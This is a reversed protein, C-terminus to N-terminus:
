AERKLNRIENLVEKQNINLQKVFDLNLDAIAEKLGSINKNNENFYSRMEDQVSKIEIPLSDELKKLRANMSFKIGDYKEVLEIVTKGLSIVKNLLFFIVTTMIGLGTLLEGADLAMIDEKIQGGRSM